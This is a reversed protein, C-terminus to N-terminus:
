MSNIFPLNNSVEIQYVPRHFPTTLQFPFNEKPVNKVVLAEILRIFVDIMGNATPATERYNLFFNLLIVKRNTITFEIKCIWCKEEYNADQFHNEDMRWHFLSILSYTCCIQQSKLITLSHLPVVNSQM